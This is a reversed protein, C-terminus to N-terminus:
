KQEKEQLHRIIYAVCHVLAALAVGTSTPKDVITNLVAEAKALNNDSM